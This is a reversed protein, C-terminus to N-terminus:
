KPPGATRRRHVPRIRWDVQQGIAAAFRALTSLKPDAEGRELRAIAPQSTGMRRALERQSIGAAKRKEALLRLLARERVASEYLQPFTPDCAAYEDLLESLFDQGETDTDDIDQVGESGAM